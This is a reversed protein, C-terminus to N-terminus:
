NSELHYLYEKVGNEVTFCSAHVQTHICCGWSMASARKSHYRPHHISFVLLPPPPILSEAM